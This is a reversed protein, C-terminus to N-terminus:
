ISVIPDKYLTNSPVPSFQVQGLIEGNLIDIALLFGESTVFYVINDSEAINSFLTWGNKNKSYEWVSQGNDIDLAIAQTGSKAVIRQDTFIPPQNVSFNESRWIITNQEQELLQFAPGNHLREYILNEDIRWIFPSKLKPESKIIEGTEADLLYYNSSSGGDVSITDETVILSSISSAGPIVQSWKITGSMRDYAEVKSAGWAMNGQIKQTSEFGIYLLRSNIGITSAIPVPIAKYPVQILQEEMGSVLDIITVSGTESLVYAKNLKALMLVSGGNEPLPIIFDKKTWLIEFNASSKQVSFAPPILTATDKVYINIETGFMTFILYGLTLILAGILFFVKRQSM